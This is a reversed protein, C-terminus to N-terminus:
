SVDKRCEACLGRYAYPDDAAPDSRNLIVGMLPIGDFRLRQVATQVTRRDTHDARVVLLLEETYRAMIRADAFELCPPADVLIYDFEKRFLPLLRAMRGSHLLGFINGTSTGSPLLYLHPVSTKKALVELPLEDVANKERLLDSLGWSNAEDFLKHLRPRRMDGDILLVKSSIAALAIGLNSVITTKGEMPLASTVLLVRPQEGGRQASLISAVTARFSESLGTQEELAAREVGVTGNRPGPFFMAAPTWHNAQPIAGLEPLELYTGAEGPVRLVPKRQEQLMICAVALVLGGITGIALNLPVNPKEPVAPPAAPSVLRINTLPLSSALRAHYAKQEMADYVQRRVDTGPSPGRAVGGPPRLTGRLERLEQVLSQYTQSASGQREKINQEIFTQALTNAIDASLSASRADSIIQIVRSNRVPVIRIDQRLRSALGHVGRYEPRSELNLKRAVQELLNDQQLLEAQTQMYVTADATPAAAPYIDRLDLFTDNLAQIELSARSQYVRSQVATVAAAALIGLCTLGVLRGKRRYLLRLCEPLSCDDRRPSNDFRRDV